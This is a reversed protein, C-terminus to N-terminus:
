EIKPWDMRTWQSHTSNQVDVEYDGRYSHLGVLFRALRATTTAFFIHWM